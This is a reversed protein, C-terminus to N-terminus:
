FCRRWWSSRCRRSGGAARAAKYAGGRDLGLLGRWSLQTQSAALGVVGAREAEACRAAASSWFCARARRSGWRAHRRAALRRTASASCGPRPLADEGRSGLRARVDATAGGSDAGRQVRRPRPPARASCATDLRLTPLGKPASSACPAGLGPCAWGGHASSPRTAPRTAKVDSTERSFPLLCAAQPARGSASRRDAGTEDVRRSRSLTQSAGLLLSVRADRRSGAVRLRAL